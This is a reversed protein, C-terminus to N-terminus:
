RVKALSCRPLNLGCSRGGTAYSATMNCDVEWKYIWGDNDVDHLPNNGRRWIRRTPPVNRYAPLFVCLYAHTPTKAAPPDRHCGMATFYRYLYPLQGSPSLAALQRPRIGVVATSPGGVEPPCLQFMGGCGFANVVHFNFSCEINFMAMMDNATYGLMKTYYALRAPFQPDNRLLNSVKPNKNFFLCDTMVGTFPVDGLMADDPIIGGGGGDPAGASQTFVTLFLVVGVFIVLLIVLFIVPVIGKENKKMFVQQAATQRKLSVKGGIDAENYKNILLSKIGGFLRRM